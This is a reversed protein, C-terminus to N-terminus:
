GASPPATLRAFRRVVARLVAPDVPKVLHLHFGAAATRRRDDATGGATVAVLLPPRTRCGALRRAVECGDPGPIRVDLVAVDPPAAAAQRLADAGNYATRVAFGDLALLAATTDAADPSDDVLLVTLGNRTDCM